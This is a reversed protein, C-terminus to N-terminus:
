LFRLRPGTMMPHTMAWNSLALAMVCDDHFGEPASYRVNSSRTMEYQYLELEHLLEPIDPYTIEEREISVQLAQVLQQKSKNTFLYGDVSIDTLRLQDLIPDGVGTSDVLLFANYSRVIHAIREIQVTYDVQNFRDFAVVSQTTTDIVILVSFDQHKAIDWGAVYEHGSIPDVFSGTACARINRFVGASDELFEAEYEQRFVDSPLTKQAEIWEEQPFYPSSNSPFVFSAYNPYADDNGRCHEHYFWNRGKPTGILIAWGQKDSLSPRISQEWAKRRVLAAEDVVGGRYGEGVKTEWNELSIFDIRSGNKLHAVPQSSQNFKSFAGKFRAIMEMGIRTNQYTPAAWFYNDVVTWANGVLANAACTTKGWRRGCTVTRFRANSDHLLKQKKHPSYLKLKQKTAMTAMGTATAGMAVMCLLMLLTVTRRSNQSTTM